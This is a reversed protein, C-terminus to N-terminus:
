KAGDKKVAEEKKGPEEKAAAADKTGTIRDAYVTLGAEKTVSDVYEQAKKQEYEKQLEKVLFPKAEAFSITRKEHREDVRILHFGYDTEVVDSVEGVKLAFVAKEFEASSTKGPSISGLEGGKKGSDTDDSAEQALKAFDEGKKLRQQLEVAKVRAKAKDEASADKGAQVFIHRVKATEPLVLEKEKEKYLKQLAEDPM